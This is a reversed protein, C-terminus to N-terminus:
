KMEMVRELLKDLKLELRDITVEIREMRIGRDEYGRELMAIREAKDCGRGEPGPCKGNGNRPGFSARAWVVAREAALPVAMLLALVGSWEEPGSPQTAPNMRLRRASPIGEEDALMLYTKENWM